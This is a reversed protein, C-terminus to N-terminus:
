LLINTSSNQLQHNVVLCQNQKKDNDDDDDDAKTKLVVSFHQGQYKQQICRFM